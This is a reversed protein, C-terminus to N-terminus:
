TAKGDELPLVKKYNSYIPSDEPFYELMVSVYRDFPNQIKAIEKTKSAPLDHTNIKVQFPVPYDTGFLIKHHIAKQGSLHRLAKSRLPSLMASLDAYLNNYTSLMELLKFYNRGFYCPSQSLNRWPLLKHSFHGLGMHAAIVTVGIKLPLELMEVTEYDNKSSVSYEGGTHIILPIGKEKLKEFYPILWQRRLDIFWYNQLFKAGRCGNTVAEDILGLANPRLPNISFFPIFLDPYAKSVELVDATHSCVTNDRHVEKGAKDFYSDVPFLCVKKIYRSSRIAEAMGRVYNPYPKELLADRDHGLKSSFFRIVLKDYLKKFRVNPNVLHTHIDITQM